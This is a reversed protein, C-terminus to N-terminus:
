PYSRDAQGAFINVQKLAVAETRSAESGDPNYTVDDPMFKILKAHVGDNGSNYTPTGEVGTIEGDENFTYNTGVHLGTGYWWAGGVIIRNEYTMWLDLDEQSVNIISIIRWVNGAITQVKFLLKYTATNIMNDVIGKLIRKAKKYANTGQTFGYGELLDILDQPDLEDRKYDRLLQWLDEKVGLWYNIM